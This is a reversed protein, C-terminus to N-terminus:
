APFPIPQRRPRRHRRAPRPQQAHTTFGSLGFATFVVLTYFRLTM